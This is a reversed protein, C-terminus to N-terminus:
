MSVEMHAKFRLDDSFTVCDSFRNAEVRVHLERYNLLDAIYNYLARNNPSALLSSHLQINQTRKKRKNLTVVFVGDLEIKLRPVFALVEPLLAKLVVSEESTM